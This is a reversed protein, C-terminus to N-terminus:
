VDVEAPDKRQRKLPRGEEGEERESRKQLSSTMEVEVTGEKKEEEKKEEEEEEEEEREMAKRVEEWDCVVYWHREGHPGQELERQMGELMARFGAEIAIKGKEMEFPSVPPINNLVVTILPTHPPFHAPLMSQELNEIGCLVNVVM